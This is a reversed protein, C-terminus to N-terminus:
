TSGLKPVPTRLTVGAWSGFSKSIPCRRPRGETLTRFGSPVTLSFPPGSTQQIGIAGNAIVGVRAGGLAPHTGPLQSAQGDGGVLIGPAGGQHYALLAGDVSPDSANVAILEAAM